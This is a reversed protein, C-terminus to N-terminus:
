GELGTFVCGGVTFILAVVSSSLVTCAASCQCLRGLSSTSVGGQLDVFAVHVCDQASLETHSQQPTPDSPDWLDRGVEVM